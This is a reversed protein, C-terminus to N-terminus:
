IGNKMGGKMGKLETGIMMYLAKVSEQCKKNVFCFTVITEFDTIYLLINALYVLEITKM